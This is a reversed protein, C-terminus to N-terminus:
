YPNTQFGGMPGMGMPGGMPGGMGQGMGQGMGMGMNMNMGNNPNGFPNAGGFGPGGFGPMSGPPPMLMNTMANLMPNHAM